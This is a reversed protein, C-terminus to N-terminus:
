CTIFTNFYRNIDNEIKSFNGLRIAEPDFFGKGPCIGYANFDKIVTNMNEHNIGGVAYTNIGWVQGLQSMDKLREFGCKGFPLKIIIQKPEKYKRLDLYKKYFETPSTIIIASELPKDVGFPFIKFGKKELEAFEDRFPEKIAKYFEEDTQANAPFFKQNKLKYDKVIVSEKELYVGPIIHINQKNAEEIADVFVGPCVLFKAGIKIAEKALVSNKISGVGVLLNKKLSQKLIEQWNKSNSTIEIAVESNKNAIEFAKVVNETPTDDKTRLIGIIKPNFSSVILNRNCYTRGIYFIPM